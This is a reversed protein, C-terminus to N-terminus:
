RRKTKLVATRLRAAIDEDMKFRGSVAHLLSAVRHSIQNENGPAATLDREHTTTEEEATCVAEVDLGDTM